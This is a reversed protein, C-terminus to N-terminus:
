TCLSKKPTQCGGGGPTFHRGAVLCLGPTSVVVVCGKFLNKSPTQKQTAQLSQYLSTVMSLVKHNQKQIEQLEEATETHGESDEAHEKTADLARKSTKIMASLM